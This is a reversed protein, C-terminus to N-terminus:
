LSPAAMVVLGGTCEDSGFWSRRSSARTTWRIWVSVSSSWPAGADQVPCRVPRRWPVCARAAASAVRRWLSVCRLGGGRCRRRVVVAAAAIVVRLAPRSRPQSDMRCESRLSATATRVSYPRSSSARSSTTPSASSASKAEDAVEGVRGRRWAQGTETDGVGDGVAVDVEVVAKDAREVVGVGSDGAHVDAVPQDDRGAQEAM